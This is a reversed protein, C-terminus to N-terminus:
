FFQGLLEKFGTDLLFILLGIIISVVITAITERKLTERSPFIIKNYESRVSRLFDAIRMFLNPRAGKKTKGREAMIEDGQAQYAKQLVQM